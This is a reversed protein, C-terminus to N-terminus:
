LVVLSVVTSIASLWQITKLTCAHSASDSTSGNSQEGIYQKGLANISGSKTMLADDQNVGQMNEMAGFWAYREVYDTEDMFSETNNMFQYIDDQSCQAKVDNYNQCAWETVWLNLNFTQHFDQLYAKFADADVDYWHLAIFDVTCGGDCAALWDQLWTKGSPASSPAPSGLRVGQLRLPEIYTRWLDAGQAPTLNSQGPQQPENFALVAQVHREQITQNITGQWQNAQDSGWLMPVFELDTDFYSPGWTYYWSVKGTTRYQDIDVSNGNPWALGAKSSSTVNRSELLRTPSARALRPFFALLFVYFIICSTM